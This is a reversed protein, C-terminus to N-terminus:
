SRASAIRVKESRANAIRMTGAVAPSASTTILNHNPAVIRFTSTPQGPRAGQRRVGSRPTVLVEPEEGGGSERILRAVGEVKLDKRL